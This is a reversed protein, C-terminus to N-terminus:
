LNKSHPSHGDLVLLAKKETTPKVHEILHKLLKMFLNSNIYGSESCDILSKPPAGIMLAPHTGQRKFIIM